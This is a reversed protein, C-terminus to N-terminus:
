RKSARSRNNTALRESDLCASHRSRPGRPLAPTRAHITRSSSFPAAESWATHAPRRARAPNKRPSVSYYGRSYWDQCWEMLNGAMDYAGYPSAGDHTQLDGRKSGDYYGVIQVTDYKQAGVFNAYTNDITNGWPFRRQDTGRAAKEWEAETPLRYKKGTKASLWNCYATAADWNV